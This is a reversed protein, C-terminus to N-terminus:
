SEGDGGAADAHPAVEMLYAYLNKAMEEDPVMFNMASRARRSGTVERLFRTNNNLYAVFNEETWVLGQEAADQIGPQYRFDAVQAAPGGVVGYLNPGTRMNRGAITEGDPTEIIHCTVCQRNFFEEGAAVDQAAAPTAAAAALAAAAYLSTRTM